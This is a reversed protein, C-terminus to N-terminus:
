TDCREAQRPTPSMFFVANTYAPLTRCLTFTDRLPVPNRSPAAGSSKMKQLDMGQLTELM